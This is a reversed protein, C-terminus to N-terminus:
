EHHIVKPGDTQYAGTGSQRRYHSWGLAVRKHLWFGMYDWGWTGEDEYRGERRWAAGGGVYYGCYRGTDSPFARSHVCTPWGACQHAACRWPEGAYTAAIAEAQSAFIEQENAARDPLPRMGQNPWDAYPSKGFLGAPPEDDSLSMVVPGRKLISTEEGRAPAALSSATWAAIWCWICRRRWDM